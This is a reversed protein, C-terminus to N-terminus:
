FVSAKLPGAGYGTTDLGRQAASQQYFRRVWYDAAAQAAAPNLSQTDTASRHQRNWQQRQKRGMGATPPVSDRADNGFVAPSGWNPQAGLWDYFTAMPQDIKASNFWDVWNQAQRQYFAGFPNSSDTSLGAHKALYNPLLAPNDRILKKSIDNGANSGQVGGYGASGLEGLSAAYGAPDPRKPLGTVPDLGDDSGGGGGGRPRNAHQGRFPNRPKRPRTPAPPDPAAFPNRPPM